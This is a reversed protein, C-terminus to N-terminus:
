KDQSIPYLDLNAFGTNLITNNLVKEGEYGHSNMGGGRTFPKMLMLRTPDEIFWRINHERIM